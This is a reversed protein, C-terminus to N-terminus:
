AATLRAATLAQELDEWLDDVSELGVSLRLLGAPIGSDLRHGEDVIRHTLSAPAQILTDVSGLSVAPTILRLSEVLRAAQRAGGKVEFSLVSGPGRQQTELLRASRADAALGPFHVRRVAPHGELRHALEVAGEQQARVRLPLTQLGRHFLYAAMPHVIGGTAIRVQRLARAWEENTAVVGGLADGHGGLFKTASHLVVDVGLTAPQQLVPTAFTSDIVVPVARGIRKSADASQAVVSELDVLRLTPNAPTEAFVLATDEDIAAAIASETTWRVEPGLLSSTFLHDTGGYVPRVAVINSERRPCRTVATLVVATVAAMGSAFAVADETGELAALAQEFANTNPNALRGYIPNPADGAGEVLRDLSEVAAGTNRFGYTTSLDIPQVHPRGEGRNAHGGAKHRGAHVATTELRM